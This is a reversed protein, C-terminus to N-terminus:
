FFNFFSSKVNSYYYRFNDPSLTTSYVSWQGGHVAIPCQVEKVETEVDVFCPLQVELDILDKGICSTQSEQFRKIIVGLTFKWGTIQFNKSNLVTM